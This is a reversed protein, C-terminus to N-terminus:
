QKQGWAIKALTQMTRACLDYFEAEAKAEPSESLTMDLNLM